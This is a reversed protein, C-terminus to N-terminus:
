MKINIKKIHTAQTGQIEFIVGCFRVDGRAPEFRAPFGTLFRKLIVNKDVGIVSDYPGTMGCDTIYATGSVIEEDNTQIHTHTGILASVKGALFWKMAIKESTTEAHMDVVTPIDFEQKSIVQFPCDLVRDIFTRGLLSVLAVRLENKEFFSVGRGPNGPPLNLPRVIRKDELLPVVEKRDFVHDGLTIGDVGYSFIEKAIEPTIGKGGAANEANAFVFDTKEKKMLEPLVKKLADRGAKGFIDGIFLIKM